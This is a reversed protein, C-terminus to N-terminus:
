EGEGTEGQLDGVEREKRQIWRREGEREEMDGEREEREGTEKWIPLLTVKSGSSLGEQQESSMEM